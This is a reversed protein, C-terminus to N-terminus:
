NYCNDDFALGLVESRFESQLKNRVDCLLLATAAVGKGSTAPICHVVSCSLAPNLLQIQFVFFSSYAEDWHDQLFSMFARPDAAFQTFLDPSELFHSEAIRGSSAATV